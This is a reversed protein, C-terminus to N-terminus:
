AEERAKRGALIADMEAMAAAKERAHRQKRRRELYAARIEEPHERAYQRRELKRRHGPPTHPCGLHNECVGDPQEPLTCGLCGLVEPDDPDPFAYAKPVGTQGNGMGHRTPLDVDDWIRTAKILGGTM